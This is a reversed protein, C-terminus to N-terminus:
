GVTLTKGPFMHRLARRNLRQLNFLKWNCLSLKRFYRDGIYVPREVLLATVINERLLNFQTLFATATEPNGKRVMERRCKSNNSGSTGRKAALHQASVSKM